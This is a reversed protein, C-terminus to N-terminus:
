TSNTKIDCITNENMNLPLRFASHVKQEGKLLIAAIDTWAVPLVKVGQKQLVNISVNHLYNKGSGGPGHIHVLKNEDDNDVAGM